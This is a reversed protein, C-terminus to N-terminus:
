SKVFRATHETTGMIEMEYSDVLEALNSNVIYSSAESTHEKNESWMTFGVPDDKSMRPDLSLRITGKIEKNITKTMEVEIKSKLTQINTM